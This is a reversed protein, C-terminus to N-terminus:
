SVTYNSNDIAETIAEVVADDDNASGIPVRITMTITREEEMLEGLGAERLAEDVTECWGNADAYKRAVEVVKQGLERATMTDLTVPKPAPTVLRLNSATLRYSRITFGTNIEVVYYTYRGSTDISKVTGSSGPFLRTGNPNTATTEVVDGVNFTM